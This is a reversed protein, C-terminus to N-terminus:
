GAPGRGALRGRQSDVHIDTAAVTTITQFLGTVRPAGNTVRSFVGWQMDEGLLTVRFLEYAALLGSIQTAGLDNGSVTSEALGALFNRGRSSRGRGNTHFSICYAVNGPLAPSDIGGILVPDFVHTYTPSTQTTLDTAEIRTFSIEDSLFACIDEFLARVFGALVNFNGSVWGDVNYVYLVNEIPQGHLTGIVEVQLVRPGPVYPMANKDKRPSVQSLLTGGPM